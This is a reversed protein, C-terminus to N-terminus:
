EAPAPTRVLARRVGPEAKRVTKKKKKKKKKKRKNEM